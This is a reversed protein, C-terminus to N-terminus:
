IIFQISHHNQQFCFGDREYLCNGNLLSLTAQYVKELIYPDSYGTSLRLAHTFSPYNGSLPLTALWFTKPSAQTSFCPHISNVYLVPLHLASLNNLSSM